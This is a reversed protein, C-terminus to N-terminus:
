CPSKVCIPKSVAQAANARAFAALLGLYGEVTAASQLAMELEIPSGTRLDEGALTHVMGRESRGLLLM